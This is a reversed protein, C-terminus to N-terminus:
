RDVRELPAYSLALRREAVPNSFRVVVLDSGEIGTVVGEGFKAHRVNDGVSLDPIESSSRAKPRIGTSTGGSGAVTIDIGQMGFSHSSSGTRRGTQNWSNMSGSGRAVSSVNSVRSIEDQPLEEIFRSPSNWMRRGFVSRSNAHVLTLEDRARTIGVYCLRREEEIDGDEISRSHPFLGEDMGIMYVVNYELGKANHVTMLTVLSAEDEITDADSQLTVEQLFQPLGAGSTRTDFEKAANILEGLNEIRGEAEVTGENKLAEVLGTREYVEEIIRTVSNTSDADAAIADLMASFDAIKSAASKSLGAVMHPSAVADRLSLGNVASHLQVKALSTAGIGRKPTNIIRTLAVTDAPNTATTLYALVDKIEAREYFRTGGVIQYRIGNKVLIDELKRSQANTRYFVAIESPSCGNETHKAIEAAILRAEIDEDEVERVRVREGAERVSKLDKPIRKLNNSVVANAADLINSTSRYNLDLVVTNADPFDEEFSTINRIDAGRWSYISQDADGVCCINRHTASLIQLLRYQAHNTDQYEDVLIYKFRDQWKTRVDENADLLEVTKMLMDDFDMAGNENLKQDYREYIDAITEELFSEAHARFEAAGVLRNKAGSIHHHVSSPSFRKPDLDLDEMARKVIRLQADQDFISFATPYGIREAEQRLIRGCAAHFTMLWMGRAQPGVITAVRERMEAAAKNTFTIALIQDPRARPLEDGEVLGGTILRAIRYTLVRTKGSGAGAVVLLPGDAHKVAELQAENLEESLQLM